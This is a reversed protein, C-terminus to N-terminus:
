SAKMIETNEAAIDKDIGSNILENMQDKHVKDFMIYYDGVFKDGKIKKSEPTLEKPLNNGHLWLNVYIFVVTM